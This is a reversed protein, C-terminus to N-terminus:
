SCSRGSKDHMILNLRAEIGPEVLNGHFFSKISPNIGEFIEQQKVSKEVEALVSLNSRDLAKVTHSKCWLHHPHHNSVLANPITDEIGLNKTVAKTMLLDVKEWM